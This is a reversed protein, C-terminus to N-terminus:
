AAAPRSPLEIPPQSPAAEEKHWVTRNVYDVYSLIIRAVKQSVNDAEYDAVMRFRRRGASWHTTALEVAQLVREPELGCMIVATEDMGEPREHAQRIMVAPFDCLSAEETLTGSDSIVCTAKRQLHVYDLFGLPKLFRIRPDLRSAEGHSELRKRTRPHTSVIVPRDNGCEEIM